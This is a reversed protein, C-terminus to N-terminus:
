SVVFRKDISIDGWDYTNVFRSSISGYDSKLFRKLTSGVSALAIASKITMLNKHFHTGHHASIIINFFYDDTLHLENVVQNIEKSELDGLFLLNDSQKFAISLRNATKRLSDNAEKINKSIEGIKDKKIEKDSIEQPELLFTELSATELRTYIEKLEKDESAAVEFSKIAKAIDSTISKDDIVKPPWLIEYENTGIKIKDGKGLAQTIVRKGNMHNVLAIISSQIPHNPNLRINISFLYLFFKKKDPFEPMIPFYFNKLHWCGKKEEYCKIIGNFHDAHHHSLLFNDHFCWAPEVNKDGGFDITLDPSKDNIILLNLGDGIDKMILKEM